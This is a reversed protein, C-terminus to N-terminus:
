APEGPADPLEVLVADGEVKVAYVPVPKTAPLARPRGTELDFMSGHKPCEITLDDTDVDGESLHYNEHSCIDGVAHFEGGTNVLAIECGDVVVRRAEGEPVDSTRAVERLEPM